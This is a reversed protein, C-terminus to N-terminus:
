EEKDLKKPLYNKPAAKEEKKDVEKKLIGTEGTLANLYDWTMRNGYKGTEKRAQNREHISQQLNARYEEPEMEDMGELMYTNATGKSLGMGGKGDYAPTDDLSTDTVGYEADTDPAAPAPTAAAPAPTAEEVTRAPREVVKHENSKMEVLIRQLEGDLEEVELASLAGPGEKVRRELKLLAQQMDGLLDNEFIKPAEEVAVGASDRARALIEQSTLGLAVTNSRGQM